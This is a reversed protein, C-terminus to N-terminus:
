LSIKKVMSQLPPICLPAFIRVILKLYISNLDKDISNITQGIYIKNNVLNTIKYIAAM